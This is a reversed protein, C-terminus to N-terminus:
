YYQRTLKIAAALPAFLLVFLIMYFMPTSRTTKNELKIRCFLLDSLVSRLSAIRLKKM